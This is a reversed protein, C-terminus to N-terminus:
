ARAKIQVRLDLRMVWGDGVERGDATQKRVPVPGDSDEGTPFAWVLQLNTLGLRTNGTIITRVAEYMAVCRTEVEVATGAPKHCKVAVEIDYQEDRVNPQPGLVVALERSTRIGLISVLEQEEYVDPPGFCIQVNYLTNAQDAAAAQLLAYLAARSRGISTSM